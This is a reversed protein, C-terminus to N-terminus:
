ASRRYLRDVVHRSARCDIAVSNIGASVITPCSVIVGQLPQDNSDKGIRIGTTFNGNFSPTGIKHIFSPRGGDTDLVMCTSGDLFQNTILDDTQTLNLGHLNLGVLWGSASGADQAGYVNHIAVNDIHCSPFPSVMVTGSAQPLANTVSLATGIAKTNGALQYTWYSAILLNKVVVSHSLMQPADAQGGVQEEVNILFGCSSPNTFVIKATHRGDCGLSISQYGYVSIVIQRDSLYVGPPFVVAAGFTSTTRDMAANFAAQIGAGSLTANDGNAGFDVPNIIGLIRSLGLNGRGTLMQTPSLTQAVDFRLRNALSAATTAAFNADDGLADALEKLTDLTGPAANILGAIAASIAAAMGAANVATGIDFTHMQASADLYFFLKDARNFGIQGPVLASPVRGPTDNYIIAPLGSM